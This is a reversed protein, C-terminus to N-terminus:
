SRLEPFYFESTLKQIDKTDNCLEWTVLINNEFFQLLWEHKVYSFSIKIEKKM